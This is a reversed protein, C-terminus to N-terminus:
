IHQCSLPDDGIASRGGGPYSISYLPDGRYVIYYFKGKPSTEGYLLDEWIVGYYVM